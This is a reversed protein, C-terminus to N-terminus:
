INGDGDSPGGSNDGDGDGGGQPIGGGAPPSTTTPAPAATTTPAPAATTTPAPAATTTPAPAATTTVAPAPPPPPAKVVFRTQTRVAHDGALTVILRHQGPRVGHFIVRRSGFRTHGDLVYRFPRAGTAQGGILAVKV